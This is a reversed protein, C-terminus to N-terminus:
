KSKRYQERAFDDFPAPAVTARIRPLSPDIPHHGPGQHEGWVFEVETGPEAFKRDVLAVGLLTDHRIQTNVSWSLGVLDGASEVRYVGQSAVFKQTSGLVDTVDDRNAVLTVKTRLSEDGKAKELADRGVFDHGYDVFAGYGLEHPSSYYDEINESFFSGHFPRLAEYGLAPLWQRYTKLDPDTYIAPLPQPIWGSDANNTSYALSGVELLGFEDGARLFAEKVFEYDTYEGIFEYGPQGSMGHRLARFVRGDLKAEASHFFKTAPLPGGFTAAVVDMARPGQLQFRFYLPDEPNFDASPSEEFEVDYKGTEGQFKIWNQIVPAGTVVFRDAAERMLIADGILQGSATACVAQKAQWVDFKEVNNVIHRSLLSVADPGTIVLDFMHYSLDLLGVTLFPAVQEKRWDTVEPKVPAPPKWHEAPDAKWLLNVPSGAEDIAQQLSVESLM